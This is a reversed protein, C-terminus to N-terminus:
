FDHEVPMAGSSVPFRKTIYYGVADSQHTVDDEPKSPKEIEGASGQKLTTGEFSDLTHPALVPDIAFAIVGDASRIRWNVANLRNRQPPAHGPPDVYMRVRESGLAQRLMKRIILWDPGEPASTHRAGGAPDGYLHFEGRHDSWDAIIKRCVAPTNSNHPIYVEGVVGTITDAYPPGWDCPLEQVMVCVGPDVNFDFCLVLPRSVDYWVRRSAHDVLTLDYYARGAFNVFSAEYEQEFSLRDMRAKARAITEAPLIESSRWHFAEWDTEHPLLAKRFLKYFWNRGKPKGIFWVKGLRGLTDIGPSVTRTWAEEKLDACEDLCAWDIPIGEIRQPKDLGVVQIRAGWASEIFLESESPPRGLLDTPCLAKLDEWYIRKAQDRTPAGFVILGDHHRNELWQRVGERKARETKGSRRGAVVVLFRARSRVLRAQTPHSFLPTWRPTLRPGRVGVTM